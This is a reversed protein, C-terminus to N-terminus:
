ADSLLREIDLFRMIFAELFVKYGIIEGDDQKIPILPLEFYLEHGVVRHTSTERENKWVETVPAYWEESEKGGWKYKIWIFVSDDDSSLKMLGKNYMEKPTGIFVDKIQKM